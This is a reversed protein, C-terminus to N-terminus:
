RESVWSGIRGLEQAQELILENREIERRAAERESVDVFAGVAGTVRGRGDRLPVANGLLTLRRGDEYAIVEEFDRVEAGTRAAVQVPLEEAALEAGSRGSLVRFGRPREGSPASMSLNVPEEAGLLERGVRNGVIVRCAPDRAIWVAVPVADLVAELERAREESEARARTLRVLPRAILLFLVVSTLVIWGTGKWVEVMNEVSRELHLSHLVRDSGWIWALAVLCYGTAILFATMRPREPRHMRRFAGLLGSEGRTETSM